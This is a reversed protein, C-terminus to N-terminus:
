FSFCKLLRGSLNLRHDSIFPLLQAPDDDRRRSYLIKVQVVGASVIELLYRISVLGDELVVAQRFQHPFGCDLYNIHFFQGAM